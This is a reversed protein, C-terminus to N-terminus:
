AGPGADHDVFRSTEFVQLVTLEGATKNLRSIAYRIAKKAHVTGDYAALVKM